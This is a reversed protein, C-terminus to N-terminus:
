YVIGTGLCQNSLPHYWRASITWWCLYWGMLLKM